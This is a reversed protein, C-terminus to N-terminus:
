QPPYFQQINIGVGNENFEEVWFEAGSLIEESGIYDNIDESMKAKSSEPYAALIETESGFVKTVVYVNM